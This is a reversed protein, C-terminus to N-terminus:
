EIIIHIKTDNWPNASDFDPKNLLYSIGEAKVELNIEDLDIDDLNISTSEIVPITSRPEIRGLYYYWDGYKKWGDALQIHSELYEEDVEPIDFRVRAWAFSMINNLDLQYDVVNDRVERNLNTRVEVSNLIYFFAFGILLILVTKVLVNVGNAKRRNAREKKAKAQAEKKNNERDIEIQKYDDQSFGGMSTFIEQQKQNELQTAEADYLSQDFFENPDM